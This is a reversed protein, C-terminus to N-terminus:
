KSIDWESGVVLWCSGTAHLVEEVVKFARRTEGGLFLPLEEDSVDLV